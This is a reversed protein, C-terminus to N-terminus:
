GDPRRALGLEACSAIRGTLLGRALPRGAAVILGLRRALPLLEREAGRELLSYEVALSALPHITHARLLQEPSIGSIGLAGVKYAEVLAAATGITEEVPMRSGGLHLYFLDFYDVDIRRLIQECAKAPTTPAM